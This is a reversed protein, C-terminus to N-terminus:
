ALNQVHQPGVKVPGAMPAETSGPPAGGEVQPAALPGQPIPMGPTAGAAIDAMGPMTVPIGTAPDIQPPAPMQPIFRSLDLRDGFREVTEEVLAEICNAVDLPDSNRLTGIQQIADMLLPMEESWKEIEAQTNPKGSSGARIEVNVLNDINEPTIAEVPWLAAEGGIERVDEVTLMQVAFEATFEAIETLREELNDRKSTTRAMTGSEQIRAETATKPQQIPGMVAEQTGWIVEMDLKIPETTYLAGDIQPYAPVYLLKSLDINGTVDLGIIEGTSGRTIKTASTKSVKRSNFLTKPKIRDRHLSFASRTRSYEDQLTHSRTNLSEPYRRGDTEGFALLFVDYFRRSYPKRAEPQRAYQHLGEILTYYVGADRDMFEHICLFNCKGGMGNNNGAATYRYSDADLKTTTTTGPLNRQEDPLEPQRTYNACKELDERPLDPFLRECEDVSKFIRVDIWPADLYDMVSDVENSVTLDQAPIFDFAMGRMVVKEINAELAKMANQLELEKNDYQAPNGDEEICEKLRAIEALNDQIDAIKKTTVPDQQAREQWTARLVGLGVTLASRVWKIAAGKLGGRKWLRIIVLEMTKAFLRANERGRESVAESPTVDPMPNRAYLISVWTEIYSQILNVKIRFASIGRAYARDKAMAAFAAEDFKRGDEVKQLLTKAHEGEKERRERATAEEDTLDDALGVGERFADRAVLDEPGYLTALSGDLPVDGIDQAVRRAVRKKKRAPGLKQKPAAPAKTSTPKKNVTTSGDGSQRPWNMQM